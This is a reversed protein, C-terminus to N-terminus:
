LLSKEPLRNIELRKLREIVLKVNETEKEPLFKNMKNKFLDEEIRLLDFDAPIFLSSINELKDVLLLFLEPKELALYYQRWFARSEKVGLTKPQPYDKVLSKYLHFLDENGDVNNMKLLQSESNILSLILIEFQYWTQHYLEMVSLPFGRIIDNILIDYNTATDIIGIFEEWRNSEDLYDAFKKRSKDKEIENIRDSIVNDLNKSSNQSSMFPFELREFQKLFTFLDSLNAKVPMYNYKVNQSSQSTLVAVKYLFDFLEEPSNNELLEDVSNAKKFFNTFGHIGRYKFLFKEIFNDYPKKPEDIFLPKIESIHRELFTFLSFEDEWTQRYINELENPKEVIGLTTKGAFFEEEFGNSVPFKQIVQSRSTEVDRGFHEILKSVPNSQNKAYSM